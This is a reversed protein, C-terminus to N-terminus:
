TFAGFEMIVIGEKWLSKMEITEGTALDEVRFSPARMTVKPANKAFNIFENASVEFVPYNYKTDSMM